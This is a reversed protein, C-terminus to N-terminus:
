LVGGPHSQSSVTSPVPVRVLAAQKDLGLGDALLVMQADLKQCSTLPRMCAGCRNIATSQACSCCRAGLCALVFPCRPM